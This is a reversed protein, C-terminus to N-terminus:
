ELDPSCYCGNECSIWLIVVVVVVELCYIVEWELEKGEGGGSRKPMELVTLDM